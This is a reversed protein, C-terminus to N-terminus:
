LDHDHDDLDFFAGKFTYPRESKPHCVIHTITPSHPDTIRELERQAANPSDAIITFTCYLTYTPM